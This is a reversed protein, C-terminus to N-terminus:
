EGCAKPNTREADEDKQIQLASQEHPVYTRFGELKFAM